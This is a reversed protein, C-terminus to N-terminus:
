FKPHPIRAASNAIPLRALFFPSEQNGPALSEFVHHLLHTAGCRSSIIVWSGGLLIRGTCSAQVAAKRRPTSAPNACMLTGKHTGTFPDIPIRHLYLTCLLLMHNPSTNATHAKPVVAPVYHFGKATTCHGSGHFCTCFLWEPFRIQM